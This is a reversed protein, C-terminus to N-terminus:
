LKGRYIGGEWKKRGKPHVHGLAGRSRRHIIRLIYNFKFVQQQKYAITVITGADAANM